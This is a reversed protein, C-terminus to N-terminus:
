EDSETMETIGSMESSGSLTSNTSSAGRARKTPLDSCSSDSERHRKGSALVWPLTPMNGELQRFVEDLDHDDNDDIEDNEDDGEGEEGRTNPDM